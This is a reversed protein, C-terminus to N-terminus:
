ETRDTDTRADPREDGSVLLLSLDIIEDNNAGHDYKLDAASLNPLEFSDDGNAGTTKARENKSMIAHSADAEIITIRLM